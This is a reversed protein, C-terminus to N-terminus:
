LFTKMGWEIGAEDLQKEFQAPMVTVKQALEKLFDTLQEESLEESKKELAELSTGLSVAWQPGFIRRYNAVGRGEKDLVFYKMRKATKQPGPPFDLRLNIVKSM